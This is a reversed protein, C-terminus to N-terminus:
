CSELGSIPMIYSPLDCSGWVEEVLDDCCCDCGCDKVESNPEVLMLLYGIIIAMDAEDLGELALLAREIRDHQEQDKMEYDSLYAEIVEPYEIGGVSLSSVLLLLPLVLRKM